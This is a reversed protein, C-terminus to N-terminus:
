GIELRGHNYYNQDDIFSGKHLEVKAAGKVQIDSLATHQESYGTGVPILRGMIVNEPVGSLPGTASRIAADTLVKITQQLSLASLFSDSNVSAKTIGLLVESFRVPRKNEALLQENVKRIELRDVADGPLYKSDSPNTVQVKNMM